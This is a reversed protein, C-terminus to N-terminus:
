MQEFIREYKLLIPLPIYDTITPAYLETFQESHCIKEKDVTNHGHGSIVITKMPDLQIMPETFDNTFSPEEGRSIAYEHSHNELYERKYALCNNTSHGEGFSKSQFFTKTLYFYIYARSCGAILANSSSSSFSTTLMHVAHSIRTPPYYDDDDMCVIIDGSCANNGNNRLDSLYRPQSGLYPNYPIYNINFPLTAMESHSFLYNSNATADAETQSGEVIVWEAINKYIQQKILRALVLMCERRSYQTVTLISVSPTTSTACSM